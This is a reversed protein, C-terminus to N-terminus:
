FDFGVSGVTGYGQQPYGLRLRLNQVRRNHGPPVAWADIIEWVRFGTYALLGVLFEGVGDSDDHCPDIALFCDNKSIGYIVLGMAATEGLTFIYGRDSWRGQVAQGIGFGPFISLLGGGIYQGDSIEGDELLQREELTLPPPAPQYMYPPPVQPQPPPLQQPQTQGPQAAAVGALSGAILVAGAVVVAIRM